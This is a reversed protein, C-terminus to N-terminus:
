SLINTKSHTEQFIKIFYGGFKRINLVGADFILYQGKIGQLIGTIAPTKDFSLSNIKTPYQLVPYEFTFVNKEELLIIEDSYKKLIPSLNKQAESLLRKKETILDIHPINKTLMLRWNTKDAVFDKLAVEILGAQYRNVTQFIPLAQAAGQDIWRTPNNKTRTVGVKLGSSNALYVFHSQHCQQHAWNNPDCKGTEVLCKEPHLMCNNCENIKQMCPFCYGQQFTKKIKRNCQICHIENLFELSIKKNLFNNLNIKQNDLILEYQIPQAHTVSMKQLYGSTM